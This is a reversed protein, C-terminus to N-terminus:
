FFTQSVMKGGLSNVRCHLYTTIGMQATANVVNGGGGGGGGGGKLEEAFFPEGLPQSSRKAAAVREDGATYVLVSPLLFFFSLFFQWFFPLAFLLLTEKTSKITLFWNGKSLLLGKQPLSGWAFPGKRPKLKRWLKQMSICWYGVQASSPPPLFVQFKKKRIRGRRGGAIEEELQKNIAIRPFHFLTATPASRWLCALPLPFPASFSIGSKRSEDRSGRPRPSTAWRSPRGLWCRM